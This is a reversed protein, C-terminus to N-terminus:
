AVESASIEYVIYETHLAGCAKLAANWQPVEPTAVHKDLCIRNEWLESIRVVDPTFLDAAASYNLCGEHLLSAEILTKLHPIIKEGGGAAFRLTGVVVIKASM